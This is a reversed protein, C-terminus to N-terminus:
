STLGILCGTVKGTGVCCCGGEGIHQLWVGGSHYLQLHLFALHNNSHAQPSLLTVSVM